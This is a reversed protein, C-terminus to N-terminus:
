VGVLKPMTSGFYEEHSRLDATKAARKKTRKVTKPLSRKRPAPTAPSFINVPDGSDGASGGYDSEASLEAGELIDQKVLYSQKATLTEQAEECLKTERSQFPRTSPMRHM